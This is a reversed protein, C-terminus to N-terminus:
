TGVDDEKEVSTGVEAMNGENKPHMIPSSPPVFPVIPTITKGDVDAEAFTTGFGGSILQPISHSGVERRGVMSLLPTESRGDFLYRVGGM